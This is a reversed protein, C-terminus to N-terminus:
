LKSNMTCGLFPEEEKQAETEDDICNFLVAPLATATHSNPELGLM